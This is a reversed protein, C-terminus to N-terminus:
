AGPGIVAPISQDRRGHDVMKRLVARIDIRAPCATICRGCGTCAILGATEPFYSFKKDFRNRLRMWLKARPNDGGACRAFDKLLCADWTRYRANEGADLTDHLLFCHCTPCVTNCAGCEVCTSALARWFGSDYAGGMVGALAARDPVGATACQVRVQREIRGRLAERAVIDEDAALAFWEPHEAILRDGRESASVAVYGRPVPTLNLDFDGRAHPHEGIATCFCTERPATCDLAIILGRARERAYLPEHPAQGLFAADLVALGHVDCAKVGVLCIPKEASEGDDGALGLAVRKRPPFFFDRASESARCAGLDPAITTEPTYPTFHLAGNRDVPVFVRYSGCAWALFQDLSSKSVLYM